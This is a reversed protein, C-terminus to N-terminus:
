YAVAVGYAWKTTVISHVIPYSVRILSHADRHRQPRNPLSGCYLTATDSHGIPHAKVQGILKASVCM